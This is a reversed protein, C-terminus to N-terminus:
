KNHVLNMDNSVIYNGNKNIIFGFVSKKVKTNEIMNYIEKLDIVGCLTGVRNDNNYIAVSITIISRNLHEQLFPETIYEERDKINQFFEEHSQEKIENSEVYYGYGENDVIFIHEFNSYVTKEKLFKYQEEWNMNYIESFSAIFKLLDIKEQLFGDVSEKSYMTLTALYQEVEENKRKRINNISLVTLILSIIILIVTASFIIKDHLKLTLFSKKVKKAM